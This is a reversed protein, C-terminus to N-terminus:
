PATLRRQGRGAGRRDDRRGLKGLSRAPRHVAECRVARGARIDAEAAEPWLGAERPVTGAAM